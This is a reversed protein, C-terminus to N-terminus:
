RDQNVYGRGPEAGQETHQEARVIALLDRTLTWASRVDFLSRWSLLLEAVERERSGCPNAAFFAQLDSMPVSPRRECLEGYTLEARAEYLKQVFHEAKELDQVGNKKRWRLLYKTACAELYGVRNRDILDWHQLSGGEAYHSGAVQRSNANNM